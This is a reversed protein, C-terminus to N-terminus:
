FAVSVGFHWRDEGSQNLTGGDLLRGYDLRLSLGQRLYMRMGAGISSASFGCATAGCPEAAESYNLRVKGYDFFTLFRMRGGELGFHSAVDPSYLEVTGRYGRDSAGEREYLGRLSEWGGIGFQEGPVLADHTYQGTFNGRLQLDHPLARAYDLGYRWVTYRPDGVGPRAGQPGRFKDATADNGHPFFNKSVSGFIALQANEMRKTGSYSLSFPYVTIDPTLNQGPVGDTVLQAQNTFSKYDAGFSVKHDYDEIWRLRPLMYNYRIGFITGSGSM